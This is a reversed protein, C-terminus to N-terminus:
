LWRELFRAFVLGSGFTLLALALAIDLFNANHMAEALAVLICTEILGAM